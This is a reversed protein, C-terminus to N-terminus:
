KKSLNWPIIRLITVIKDDTQESDQYHELRALRQYHRMFASEGLEGRSLLKDEFDYIYAVTNDAVASDLLIYDAQQDLSIQQDYLIKGKQVHRYQYTIQGKLFSDQTPTQKLFASVLVKDIPDKRSILKRSSTKGLGRASDTKVRHSLLKEGPSLAFLQQVKQYSGAGTPRSPLKLHFPIHRQADLTVDPTRLILRVDLTVDGFVGPGKYDTNDPASDASDSIDAATETKETQALTETQAQVSPSILFLAHSIIYILTLSATAQTFRM